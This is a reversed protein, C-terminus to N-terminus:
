EKANKNAQAFAEYMDTALFDVGAEIAARWRIAAADLSGFNYGSSWGDNKDRDHGNLTYFRILYGFDHAHNVLARLRADDDDTWDGARTQGGAEVISWPNNWWRRFNDARNPVLQAPPIKATYEIRDVGTLGDPVNEHTEAAGFLIINGGVPVDEYFVKYQGGAGSALILLPRIEFPSVKAIDDTKVASALIDEYPALMDRVVRCHEPSSNKFDINLTVLPWDTKDGSKLAERLAPAVRSLFYEDLTPEEGTFPKGHAVISKGDVWELDPEMALPMGTSLAREIRDAWRGQYPYCNHADLLTRTGPTLANDATAITTILATALLVGLRLKSTARVVYIPRRSM